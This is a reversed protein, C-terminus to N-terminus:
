AKFIPLQRGEAWRLGTERHDMYLVQVQRTPLSEHSPSWLPKPSMNLAVCRYSILSAGYWKRMGTYWVLGFLILFPGFVLIM